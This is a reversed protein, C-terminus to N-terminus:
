DSSVQSTTASGASFACAMTTRPPWIGKRAISAAVITKGIGTDTGTILLSPIPIPSLM